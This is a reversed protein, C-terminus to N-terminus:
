CMVLQTTGSTSFRSPELSVHTEPIRGLQLYIDNEQFHNWSAM